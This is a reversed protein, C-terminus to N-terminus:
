RPFRAKAVNIVQQQLTDLLEVDVEIAMRDGLEEYIYDELATKLDNQRDHNTWMGVILLGDVIHILDMAVRASEDPTLVDNGRLETLVEDVVGFM